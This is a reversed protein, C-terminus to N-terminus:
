FKIKLCMLSHRGQRHTLVARPSIFKKLDSKVVKSTSGTASIFAQLWAMYAQEFKCYASLIFIM